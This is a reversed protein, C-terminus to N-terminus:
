PHMKKAMNKFKRSIRLLLTILFSPFVSRIFISTTVLQLKEYESGLDSNLYVPSKKDHSKFLIVLNEHEIANKFVKTGVYLFNAAIIKGVSDSRIIPPFTFHSTWSKKLSKNSYFIYWHLYQIYNIVYM